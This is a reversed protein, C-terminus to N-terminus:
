SFLIELGFDNQKMRMEKHLLEVMADIEGKQRHSRDGAVFVHSESGIEVWSCGPEKKLGRRKMQKRWGSAEDWRGAAAYVNSLTVYNAANCPELRFLYEFIYEGVEINDREKWASLISGLIQEDPKFPMTLILKLAEELNDCRSLVTSLCGYHELTPKRNYKSVIDAFIRIGQNILREHSCASLVSTFTVDDPEINEESMNNYLTLAEQARSHLGYASIMANYLALTKDSTTNYVKVAQAISGCKAYMDVLSTEIEVSFERWQRIVYGHIAKGVLLSTMNICTSLLATLSATNPRVGSDQMQKFLLMAESGFGNQALGSLITTWTIVNPQVGVLQMQSFMQKAEDVLQNKMLASLLSNWSIVNPHFGRLQMEYFLKLAEGSLGLEAYAALLTNWVLLDKELSADFVRKAYDLKGGKAYMDIMSAIVVVDSHFGHRICYSHAEKGLKVDNNDVCSSFICSMTVCDFKSGRLRMMRCMNVANEILGHQVYCSILLNWTVVDTEVMKEFVLEAYEVLSLKSYFNIISSGLIPGLELGYLIALAHGQKGEQLARLNASASLFGSISVRTPEVGDVIMNNFMLVAEKDMGNHVCNVIMSNWVVVNSKDIMRDFVRKADELIGCKGYMDVLSSSVYVCVNMGM